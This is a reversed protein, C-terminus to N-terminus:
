DGWPWWLGYAFAASVATSAFLMQGERLGGTREALDRLPLPAREITAPTWERPLAISAASKAKGELEVSFSSAVCSQRADWSWGRTPWASRLEKLSSLIVVWADGLVREPPM